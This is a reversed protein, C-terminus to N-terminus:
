FSIKLTRFLMNIDICPINYNLCVDPIKISKKSEPASVEHTVITVDVNIQKQFLAFSILFPDANQADAFDNIATPLYHRTSVWNQLEAYQIISQASNRWFAKEINNQCWIKLDDEYYFLEDKVKDISCIDKRHFIHKLEEWFSPHIDLPHTERHAKIFINSDILYIM